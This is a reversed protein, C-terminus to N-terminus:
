PPSQIRSKAGKKLPNPPNLDGFTALLRSLCKRHSPPSQIRSKAGKKLPNPPNLDGFTAMLGRM